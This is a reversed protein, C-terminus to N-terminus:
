SWYVISVQNEEKSGTVFDKYAVAITRLGNCAMPEIVDTVLRDQTERPFKELKGDKGYIYACRSFV